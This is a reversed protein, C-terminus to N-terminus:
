FRQENRDRRWFMCKMVQMTNELDSIDLKKERVAKIDAESMKIM